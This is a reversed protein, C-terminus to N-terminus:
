VRHRVNLAKLWKTVKTFWTELGVKVPDSTPQQIEQPGDAYYEYHAQRDYARGAEIELRSQHPAWRVGNKEIWYHSECDFSWNGISPYLSVTDGDFTLQWDAPSLPTIVRNKCGCACNHAVTAFAISVYLKGDELKAPFSEVFEHTLKIPPKM